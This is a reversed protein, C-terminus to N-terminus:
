GLNIDKKDLVILNLVTFVVLYVLAIPVLSKAMEALDNYSLGMHTKSLNQVLSYDLLKFPLIKLDDFMSIFPSLIGQVLLISTTVTATINSTLNAILILISSFALVALLYQGSYLLLKSWDISLNGTLISSALTYIIVTLILLIIAFILIIFLKAFPMKKRYNRNTILNKIYGSTYEKTAAISAFITLMLTAVGNGAINKSIEEFNYNKELAQKRLGEIDANKDNEKYFEEEFQEESDSAMAKLLSSDESTQITFYGGLIPLLTFLIFFAIIVYTSKTSFARKLEYKFLNFM